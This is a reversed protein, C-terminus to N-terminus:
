IEATYRVREDDHGANGGDYSFVPDLSQMEGGHAMILTDNDQKEACACFFCLCVFWVFFLKKMTEESFIGCRTQADALRPAFEAADYFRIVEKATEAAPDAVRIKGNEWGCLLVLHGPTQM